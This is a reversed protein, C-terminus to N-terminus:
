ESVVPSTEATPVLKYGLTAAKRAMGKITKLRYSEEYASQEQRVYDEGHKLM